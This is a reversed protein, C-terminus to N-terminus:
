RCRDSECTRTGVMASQQARSGPDRTQTMLSAMWQATDPWKGALAQPDGSRDREGGQLWRQLQEFLMMM